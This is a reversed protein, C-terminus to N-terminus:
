TQDAYEGRKRMIENLLVRRVWGSMGLGEREALEMIEAKHESKLRLALIEYKNTKEM